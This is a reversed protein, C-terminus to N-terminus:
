LPPLDLLVVGAGGWTLTSCSWAGLRLSMQQRTTNRGPAFRDAPSRSGGPTAGLSSSAPSGYAILSGIGVGRM